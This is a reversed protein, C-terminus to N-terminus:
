ELANVLVDLLVNSTFPKELIVINPGLHPLENPAGTMLIVFLWPNLELARSILEPGQIPKMQFDTLLVTAPNAAMCALAELPCSHFCTIIGLDKTFHNVLRLLQLEDDVVELKPTGHDREM